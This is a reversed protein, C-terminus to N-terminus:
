EVRAPVFTVKGDLITVTGIFEDRQAANSGGTAYIRFVDQGDSHVGAHVTVGSNWGDVDARIGSSKSGLRSAEGRQGKVVARFQAM